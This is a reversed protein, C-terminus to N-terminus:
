ATAHDQNRAQRRRIDEVETVSHGSAMLRAKAAAAIKEMLAREKNPAHGHQSSADLSKVVTAM